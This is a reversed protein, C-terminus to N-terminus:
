TRNRTRSSSTGLTATDLPDTENGTSGASTDAEAQTMGSPDGTVTQTMGTRLPQRNAHRQSRWADFDSHFQQERERCYDAYDRDLGEIQKRRWSRYHHDPHSSYGSGEENWERPSSFASRDRGYSGIDRDRQPWDRNNEWAGRDGRYDREDDRFSSGAEHGMRSFFGRDDDRDRFRRREHDGLMFGRDSRERDSWDEVGRNRSGRERDNGRDFDDDYERAYGHQAM